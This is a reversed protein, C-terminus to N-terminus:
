HGGGEFSHKAMWKPGPGRMYHREPRYPDFLDKALRSLFSSVARLASPRRRRLMTHTSTDAM